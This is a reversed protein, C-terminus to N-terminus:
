LLTCFRLECRLGGNQDAYLVETGVGTGDDEGLLLIDPKIHKLSNRVPIGM